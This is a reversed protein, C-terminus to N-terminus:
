TMWEYASRYSAHEQAYELFEKYFSHHAITTSDGIVILLRRARTLAVNMRRTDSLFGVQGQDNSRVLSVITAEKERGQFGDVTGIEVGSAGLKEKLLRVQSRYPTLLAIDEPKLGAASLEAFLKGALEAEGSNARSQLLDDFSEDYNAGATDIFVMPVRTLETDKVGELDKALHKEVDAHAILEGGYFEQSSFGMITEHMRYQVRLMTRLSAPLSKQLREFLTVELGGKIAERSYLTPPLQMNDGAFVVRGAKLLPIWSLPETAQSAEDMVVWDFVGRLVHNSLGGHTSLAVEASLALRRTITLELKRADQWLRKMEVYAEHRAEGSLGRSGTRELKRGLQARWADMEQVQQYQPDESAQYRLTRYRVAELTRAPHGLRVVRLNTKALKELINDVAINSPASALVREGRAVAQRIIEVLVTTKGTGPPGHVVSVDEAGIALEVAERQWENLGSNFFKLPKPLSPEPKADGTFVDRLHATRNSQAGAASYLAKKMRKYTADSGLLDLCCRGTPLPEPLAMDIALHARYEEVRELTGDVFPPKAGDPFSLRVNDGQNMGHFPALREGRAPRSVIIRPYGGPGHDIGDITLRSVTKGLAERASVSLRALEEQRQAKEAEREIELLEALRDFHAPAEEMSRM